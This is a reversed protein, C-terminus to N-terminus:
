EIERGHIRKSAQSCNCSRIGEEEFRFLVLSDILSSVHNTISLYGKIFNEYYDKMESNTKMHFDNLQTIHEDYHAKLTTYDTVLKNIKKQAFELPIYEVKDSGEMVTQSPLSSNATEGGVLIGNRLM